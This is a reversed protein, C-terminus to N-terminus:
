SPIMCGGWVGVESFSFRKGLPTNLYGSSHLLFSHSLSPSQTQGREGEGGGELELGLSSPLPAITWLAITRIKGGPLRLVWAPNPAPGM